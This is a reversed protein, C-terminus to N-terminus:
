AVGHGAVQAEQVADDDLTEVAPPNVVAPPPASSFRRLQKPLPIRPLWERGGRFAYNVLGNPDRALMIAGVGIVLFVAGAYSQNVTPIVQVLMLLLGGLFAGSISTVGAVVAVLLLPLNQLTVFPQASVFHQLGALLAGALGAMGASVSFVAVRFWRQNLGLTGCAAPSDRLAILLRGVAGRRLMLLLMGLIVFVVLVLFVYSADDNFDWGFLSVRKAKLTAGYGFMWDAQFVLKEMLQGFALTALALYLGTLRIVPLAVLAGIAAAIVAALLLALPSTTDMKAAVAAGVGVFTYQALSVYGGYGTLLVLSLMVLALVAALGFRTINVPSLFQLVLLSVLLLGVGAALARRNSPVRAALIGKVQGVRLRVQPVFLVTAFLMFTPLSSQLGTQIYASNVHVYGQIYATGLGLLIAGLFTLPLSQLRGLMAAAFASIVLFTLTYYDNVGTYAVLLIGALAALSTGTAWSLMQVRAARAGFLELLERNDVAARMATGVRTRNLLVYLAAAVVASVIITLAYHWLINTGFLHISHGSFFYDLTRFTDLPWFQQALGVLFIFLGVTVVLSVSVPADGLGRMVLRELVVGFLPAIVFLVLVVALWTPLGEKVKLQWYVFGAVMSIAGHAINFVRTTAYTLVLGSAAISYAAGLFLGTITYSFFESFV